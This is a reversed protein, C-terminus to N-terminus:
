RYGDACRQSRCTWTDISEPPVPSGADDPPRTGDIVPERVIPIQSQTESIRQVLIADYDIYASELSVPGLLDGVAILAGDVDELRDQSVPQRELLAEGRIGPYHDVGKAKRVPVDLHAHSKPTICRTCQDSGALVGFGHFQAIYGFDEIRHSAGPDGEDLDVDFAALVIQKRAHDLGPQRINAPIDLHLEV